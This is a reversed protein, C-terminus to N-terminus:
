LLAVIMLVLALIIILGLIFRWIYKLWTTYPIDYYSLAFVLILSTPSLVSVIAYIGQFLLAVSSYVSEDTILNLIPTFVGVVIYYIDVNIISGLLVLASSVFYNFKGYSSVITEFFGNQYACILVTFSLCILMATPVMRKIGEIEYDLIDNLKIKNLSAIIFTFLIVVLSILCYSLNDGYLGWEGFAVLDSSIFDPVLLLQLAKPKNFLTTLKGIFSFSYLDFVELTDLVEFTLLVIFSIWLPLVLSFKFKSKRILTIIWKVLLVLGCIIIIFILRILADALSISFITSNFDKFFTFDFLSSIPFLGLVIIVFLIVLTIALPWVKINKYDGKVENVLLESDDSLEYKVKKKEVNVIHSNVFTILLAIGAFLLLLKPFINDFQNELGVFTEFTQFKQTSSNIITVFVGGFYGVLSSVVTTSIAVLKDYGLLLIIACIFPIFIILPFTIGTFSTIIAILMILMFIFKKGFPKVYTVINDLMKKYSPAKGLVVYLGGVALLFVIIYFFYYMTQVFRLGIGMFGFYTNAGYRDQVFYSTILILTLIICIFKFLSHKKM